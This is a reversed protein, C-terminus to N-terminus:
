DRESIASLDPVVLKDDGHTHLVINLGDLSKFLGPLIKLVWHICSLVVWSPSGGLILMLSVIVVKVAPIGIEANRLIGECSFDLGVIEKHRLLNPGPELRV